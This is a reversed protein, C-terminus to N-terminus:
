GRCKSVIEEEFEEDSRLVEFFDDLYDMAERRNRDDLRPENQVLARMDRELGLVQSRTEALYDNHACYGRYLRTRVSRVRLGEPPVAYHADVFGTADFDYPVPVFHEADASVGILKVNHCCEGGPGTLASWDLNGVLYQFVAAQSVARPELRSPSIRGTEIEQMGNREALQDVDEIVFGFRAEAEKDRDVDRYRIQLPRIRFSYETMLNYLRYAIMELVNYQLWRRGDDCHTVLKLSGEGQFPTGKRSEEDFRLRIPPFDCVRQRSIGRREVTLAVQRANGEADTYTLTAPWAKEDNERVLKRWQAAIEVQMPAQTEFLTRKYGEQALAASCCTLATILFWLIKSSHRM